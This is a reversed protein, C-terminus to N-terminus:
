STGRTLSHLHEFARLLLWHAARDRMFAVEEEPTPEWIALYPSLRRM